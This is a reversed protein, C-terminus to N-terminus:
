RDEEPGPNAISIRALPAGVTLRAPDPSAGFLMRYRLVALLEALEFDTRAIGTLGEVREILVRFLVEDAMASTAHGLFRYYREDVEPAGCSRRAGEALADVWKETARQWLALVDPDEDKLGFVARFLGRNARTLPILKEFATRMAEFPEETDSLPTGPRVEEELFESLVELILAKLDPFHTYFTGAALGAEQAVGTITLGRHGVREMLRVAALKLRARTRDRKIEGGSGAARDSLRRAYRNDADARHAEALSPAPPADLDTAVM